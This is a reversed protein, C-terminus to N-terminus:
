SEHTGEGGKERHKINMGTNDAIFWMTINYDSEETNVPDGLVGQGDLNVQSSPYVQLNSIQPMTKVM